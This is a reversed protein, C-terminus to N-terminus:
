QLWVAKNSTHYMLKQETTFSNDASFGHRLRELSKKYSTIVKIHNM